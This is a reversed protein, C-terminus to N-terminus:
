RTRTFPWPRNLIALVAQLGKYERIVISDILATTKGSTVPEPAM